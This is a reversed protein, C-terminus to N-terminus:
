MRAFIDSWCPYENTVLEIARHAHKDGYQCPFLFHQRLSSIPRRVPDQQSDTKQFVFAHDTILNVPLRLLFGNAVGFFRKQM